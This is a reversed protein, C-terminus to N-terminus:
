LSLMKGRWKPPSQALILGRWKPQWAVSAYELSMRVKVSHQPWPRCFHWLLICLSCSEVIDGLFSGWSNINICSTFALPFWSNYFVDLSIIWKKYDNIWKVNFLTQRLSGINKYPIFFDIDTIKKLFGCLVILSLLVHLLSILCALSISFSLTPIRLDHQSSVNSGLGSHNLSFWCTFIQLWGYPLLFQFVVYKSAPLPETLERPLDTAPAHQLVMSFVPLHPQIFSYSYNGQLRM